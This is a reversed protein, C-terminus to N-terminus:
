ALRTRVCKWCVTLERQSATRGRIYTRWGSSLPIRGLLSVLEPALARVATCRTGGTLIDRIDSFAAVRDGDGRPGEAQEEDRDPENAHSQSSEERAKGCRSVIGLVFGHVLEGNLLSKVWAKAM